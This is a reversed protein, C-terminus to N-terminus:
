KEINTFIEDIFGESTYRKKIEESLKKYNSLFFKKPIKFIDDINEIHIINNTDYFDYKEVTKNTTILKTESGIAEISRLTLGLQESFNIDLVVRSNKLIELNNIYSIKNTIIINKEYNEPLNKISKKDVYLKLFSKLNLKNIYKYSSIIINYRINDRLSGLYFLDYKRKNYEIKKNECEKIYFSPRFIFGYKECDDPDFSFIYEFEKASNKLTTYEFKDWLFLICKVGKNRKKLERIFEKSFERGAVVLFYDFKFKYEDLKPLYYKKLKKEYYNEIFSFKKSLERVIKFYLSREEKPPLYAEIYEAHNFKEKLIKKVNEKYGIINDTSFLINKNKLKIM